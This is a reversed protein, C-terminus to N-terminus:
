REEKTRKRWSIGRRNRAWDKRSVFSDSYILYYIPSLQNGQSSKKETQFYQGVVWWKVKQPLLAEIFLAISWIDKELWNQIDGM